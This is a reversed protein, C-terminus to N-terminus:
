DGFLWALVSAYPAALLRVTYLIPVISLAAV